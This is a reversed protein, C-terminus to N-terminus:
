ILGQQPDEYLQLLLLNTAENFLVCGLLTCILSPEYHNSGGYKDASDVDTHPPCSYSKHIKQRNKKM